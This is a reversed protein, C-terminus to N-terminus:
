KGSRRQFSLETSLPGQQARRLRRDARSARHCERGQRERTVRGLRADARASDVAQHKDMAAQALRELHTRVNEVNSNGKECAKQFLPAEKSDPLGGKGGGWGPPTGVLVINKESCTLPTLHTLYVCYGPAEERAAQQRDVELLHKTIRDEAHYDSQHDAASALIAYSSMFVDSRPAPCDIAASDGQNSNDAALEPYRGDSACITTTKGHKEEMQTGFADGNRWAGAGEEKRESQAGTCNRKVASPLSCENRDDLDNVVGGSTILGTTARRLRRRMWVSRPYQVNGPRSVIKGLCCPVLIYAAKQVLCQIQIRDTLSGCCHLGLGLNFPGNWAGVDGVFFSVNTLGAKMVRQKALAIAVPKEDLLTFHCAPLLAALALSSNGSGCGFDVVHPSPYTPLLDSLLTYLSELQQRKHYGRPTRHLQGGYLPDLSQDINLWEISASLSSDITTKNHSGANVISLSDLPSDRDEDCDIDSYLLSQTIAIRHIALAKRRRVRQRAKHEKHIQKLELSASLQSLM